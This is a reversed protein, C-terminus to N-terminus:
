SDKWNLNVHQKWDDALIDRQDMFWTVTRGNKLHVVITPEPADTLLQLYGSDWRERCVCLGKRLLVLAEDFKM